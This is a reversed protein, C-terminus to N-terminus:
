QFIFAVLSINKLSGKLELTGDMLRHARAKFFWLQTQYAWEGLSPPVPWARWLGPQCTARRLEVPLPYHTLWYFHPRPLMHAGQMYCCLSHRGKERYFLSPNWSFFFPAKPLSFSSTLCHKRKRKPPPLSITLSHFIGHPLHSIIWKCIRKPSSCIGTKQGDFFYYHM